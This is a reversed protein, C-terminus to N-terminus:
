RFRRRWVSVQVEVAVNVVVGGDHIGPSFINNHRPRDFDSNDVLSSGLQGRAGSLDCSPGCLAVPVSEDQEAPSVLEEDGLSCSASCFFNRPGTFRQLGNACIRLTSLFVM